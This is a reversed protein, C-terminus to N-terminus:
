HNSGHGIATSLLAGRVLGLVVIDTPVGGVMCASRRVGEDVFGLRRCYNAASPLSGLVYATARLVDPTAFVTDLFLRGLARGHPIAPRLMAAHVEVEWRTFQVAIFVGVLSGDVYAGHYSVLPHDIYGPERGDQALKAHVWPNCLIANTAASDKIPQVSLM